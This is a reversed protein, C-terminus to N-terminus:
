VGQMPAVIEVADGDRLETTARLGAPVFSGNVATAVKATGLGEALLVDTLTRADIERPTGNLLLKM